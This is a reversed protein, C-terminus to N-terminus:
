RLDDPLDAAHDVDRLPELLAPSIGARRLRQSTCDLVRDTSWPIGHFVDQMQRLGLLYYGGDDAPGLVVPHQDLLAFAHRLLDTSMRPLDSGIIVVQRFGRDFAAQFASRMRDGLDDGHQPLYVPGGGLWQQVVGRAGDPTYHVRVQVAPGLRLAQTVAHEALRTYVRLAAETGIEAALRTKVRGAVPERVFVLVAQRPEQGEEGAAPRPTHQAHKRSL